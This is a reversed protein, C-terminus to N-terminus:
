CPRSLHIYVLKELFFVLNLSSKLAIASRKCVSIVSLASKKDNFSKRSSWLWMECTDCHYHHSVQWINSSSVTATLTLTPEQSPKWECMVVSGHHHISSKLIRDSTMKHSIWLIYVKWCFSSWFFVLILCKTQKWVLLLLASWLRPGALAPFHMYVLHFSYMLPWAYCSM